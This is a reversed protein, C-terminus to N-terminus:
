KQIGLVSIGFGKKAILGIELNTKDFIEFKIEKSALQEIIEAPCNSAVYVELNKVAELTEKFGFVTKKNEIAKKLENIDIM